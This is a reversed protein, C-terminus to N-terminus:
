MISDNTIEGNENERRREEKKSNDIWSGDDIM